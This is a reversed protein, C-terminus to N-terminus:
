AKKSTKQEHKTLTDQLKKVLSKAVPNPLTIRSVVEGYKKLRPNIYVFELTTALDSVTIGVIQSYQSGVFTNARVTLGEKSTAKEAKKTAMPGIIGSSCSVKDLKEGRRISANLPYTGFGARSL